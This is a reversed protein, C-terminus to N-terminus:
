RCVGMCMVMYVMCMAMFSLSSLLYYSYLTNVKSLLSSLFSNAAPSKNAATVTPATTLPASAAAVHVSTISQSSTCESSTKTRLSSSSTSSSSASSSSPPVIVGMPSSSSPNSSKEMTVSTAIVLSLSRFTENPPLIYYVIKDIVIVGCKKRQQLYSEFDKLKLADSAEAPGIDFLVKTRSGNLISSDKSYTEVVLETANFDYSENSSTNVKLILNAIFQHRKADDVCFLKVSM